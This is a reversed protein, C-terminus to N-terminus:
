QRADPARLQTRNRNSSWSHLVTWIDRVGFHTRIPSRAIMLLVEFPRWCSVIARTYM